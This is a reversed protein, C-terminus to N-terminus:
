GNDATCEFDLGDVYGDCDNDLGDGCVESGECHHQASIVDSAKQSAQYIPLVIFYGPIRPFVSADVVRLNSVGRVRFEPDLVDDPSNGMPTTCCAHHGWAENRVFHNLTSLNNAAEGVFDNLQLTENAGDAPVDFDNTVRVSSTLMFRDMGPILEDLVLQVGERVALLDPDNDQTNDGFYQFNIEPREFPNTSTIRVYGTNNSHGKLVLWSFMNKTAIGAQAFGPYYGRFNGPIGFIFLDPDPQGAAVAAASKYLIALIGGNSTYPGSQTDRWRRYCPDSDDGSFTCDEILEFNSPRGFRTIESVVGVEYRDQLNQGVRPSDVRVPVQLPELVEQPGIGSLMLLQPTNFSGAALVVEGGRLVRMEKAGCVGNNTENLHCELGDRCQETATCSAGFQLDNTHRPDAQYLSRSPTDPGGVYRVGVARPPSATEDFVVETVFTETWIRLPFGARITEYLYDRPGTRAGNQTALPIQFVNDGSGDFDRTPSNVDGSLLEFLELSRDGRNFPSFAVAKVVDRLKADGIALLPSAGEVQLWGNYGHGPLNPDLMRNREIDVFYGRMSEAGWSPDDTVTAFHNWDSDNATVTIMANHATCGGVAAARPYLIGSESTRNGPHVRDVFKTDLHAQRDDSFHDVLYDWQMRQMENSLSHFAPVQHLADDAVDEGAEVLLTRFGSRALNAALPAGGAGAGVIVFHFGPEGMGGANDGKPALDSPAVRPQCGALLLLTLAFRTTRQERRM